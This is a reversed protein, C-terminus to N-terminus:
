SHQMLRIVLHGVWRVPDFILLRTVVVPLENVNSTAVGMAKIPVDCLKIFLFFKPLRDRKASNSEAEATVQYTQLNSNSPRKLGMHSHQVGHRLYPMFFIFQSM